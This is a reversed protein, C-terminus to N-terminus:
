DFSTPWEPHRRHDFMHRIEAPTVRTLSLPPLNHEVRRLVEQKLQDLTRGGGPVLDTAPHCLQHNIM